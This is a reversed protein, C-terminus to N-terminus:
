MLEDFTKQLYDIQHKIWKEFEPKHIIEAGGQGDSDNDPGLAARKAELQSAMIAFRESLLRLRYTAWYYNLRNAKSVPRITVLDSSDEIMPDKARFSCVMTIREPTNFARLAVHRIYRGQMVVASGVGPGRAKIMSGDGCRLGTEGGIMNSVDSLMVVCVFPYADIHEHVVAGTSGFDADAQKRIELLEEPDLPTAPAPDPGLTRVGDKGTVNIQYNTHGLEIDMIPVLDMGAAESVASIVDPHKWVQYVFPAVEKSHERSQFAALSSSFGYKELADKGLVDRRLERVGEPSFLLFPETVAIPSIGTDSALGLDTM